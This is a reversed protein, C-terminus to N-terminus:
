DLGEYYSGEVIELRERFSSLSSRVLLSELSTPLRRMWRSINSSSQEGNYWIGFLTTGSALISPITMSCLIRQFAFGVRCYVVTTELVHEFPESFLKRLRIAEYYDM